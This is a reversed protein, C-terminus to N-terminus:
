YITEKLMFYSIANINTPGNTNIPLSGTTSNFLIRIYRRTDGLADADIFGTFNAQITEGAGYSTRLYYTSMNNPATFATTVASQLTLYAGSLTTASRIYITVTLDFLKFGNKAPMDYLFCTNTGLTVGQAFFVGGTNPWPIQTNNNVVLTTSATNNVSCFLATAMYGRPFLYNYYIRQTFLRNDLANNNYINGDIWLDQTVNLNGSNVNGSTVFNRTTVVNATTNINGTTNIINATISQTVNINGTFINGNYNPATANGRVILNGTETSNRVLLRKNVIAGGTVELSAQGIGDIDSGSSTTLCQTRTNGANQLTYNALGTETGILLRGAYDVVCGIPYIDNLPPFAPGQIKFNVYVNSLNGDPAKGSINGCIINGGLVSGAITGQDIMMGVGQTGKYTISAKNPFVIGDNQPFILNGDTILNGSLSLNGSFGGNRLTINGVNLNAGCYIDKGCGIGGNPIRLAGNTGNTPNENRTTQLVASTTIGNQCDLSYGATATAKGISIAGNRQIYSGLLTANATSPGLINFNVNSSTNESFYVNGGTNFVTNLNALQINGTNLNLVNSDLSITQSSAVSIITGSANRISNTFLTGVVWDTSILNATNTILEDCVVTSATLSGSASINQFNQTAM